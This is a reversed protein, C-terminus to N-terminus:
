QFLCLPHLLPLRLPKPLPSEKRYFQKHLLCWLLRFWSFCRPQRRHSKM